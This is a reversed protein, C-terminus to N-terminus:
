PKTIKVDFLQLCGGGNSSNSDSESQEEEKVVEADDTDDSEESPFHRSGSSTAILSKEGFSCQTVGNVVDDIDCYPDTSIERDLKFTDCKFYSLPPNGNHNYVNNEYPSEPFAILEITFIQSMTTEDITDITCRVETLTLM